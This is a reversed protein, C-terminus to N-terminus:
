SATTDSSNGTPRQSSPLPPLPAFIPSRGATSTETVPNARHPRSLATAGHIAQSVTARIAWPVKPEMSNTRMGTSAILATGAFSRPRAILTGAV